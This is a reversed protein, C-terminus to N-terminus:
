PRLHTEFFAITRGMALGYATGSFNHDGTAYEFYEHSPSLVRLREWLRRSYEVSVVADRVPHHLQVAGQLDQIYNVPVVTRWFSSDKQFQGHAAFLAERRRRREDMVEPPRYSNDSLGLEQFDEYSFVAGAWIVGAPIEPRAAMSRLVVNGAMSHGWLGIRQPNVESFNQLAARANLVDEIYEESYYAGSATGESEGHGRLDIKLVVFGKQALANVHSLYRQTTRYQSPPIYGHVFVIAPWGGEPQAGSPITLLAQVRSGESDYRAIYSSYNRQRQHQRVITLSSDYARNRLSPITMEAFPIQQEKESEDQSAQSLVSSSSFAGREHLNVGMFFGAVSFVLVCLLVLGNRLFIHTSM